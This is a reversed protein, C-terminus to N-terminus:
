SLKTILLAWFSCLKGVLFGKGTCHSKENFLAIQVFLNFVPPSMNLIKTVM